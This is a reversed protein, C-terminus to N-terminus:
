DREVEVDIITGQRKVKKREEESSRSSGGDFGYEDGGSGFLADLLSGSGGGMIDNPNNCLELGDGRENVRSFAGCNLCVTPEGNKLARVPVQGCSPCTDQFTYLSSWIQFGVFLIFPTLLALVFLSNFIAFFAAGLPSAFFLAVLIGTGITPLISKLDELPGKPPPPLRYNM